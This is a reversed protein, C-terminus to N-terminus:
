RGGGGGGGGGGGSSGGGGGGGSFSSGGSGSWSSSSTVPPTTAFSSAGYSRSFTSLNSIGIARTVGDDPVATTAYRDALVKAWQDEVGFIIAYPLLREYLKVIASGDTADIRTREAGEPSQLMRIRDEEAVTLYLKIGNLHELAEAGKQSLREPTGSFGFCLVAGAILVWLQLSLLASGAYNDDAWFSIFIAVVGIAFSLFRLWGALKSKRKVLYGRTRINNRAQAILASIRDGLKRDVRDLEVLAGPATSLFLSRVASEDDSESLVTPDVLVLSYRDDLSREPQEVLQAARQVTLSVLQAPLATQPRELLHAAQMVGLGELPEYQAIVTGRGRANRWFVLRLWLIGILVLGLLVLLIWPVVAVIPNERPTAEAAFTGDDFEVAFTLTEYAGLQDATFVFGDATQESATCPSDSGEPGQYCAYNGTLGEEVGDALHLTASVTGFPQAWGVGNVDWYFEQSGELSDAFPRVIHRADYDIVYTTRGHVFEDTGVIVLLFEGDDELSYPVPEGNENTVGNVLLETDVSGYHTPLARVMGRNQDFDPFLAVFTEVAHLTSVDDADRGLTYDATMSEFAFDQVDASAAPAVLLPVVLGLSLAAVVASLRRWFPAPRTVTALRAAPPARDPSAITKGPARM